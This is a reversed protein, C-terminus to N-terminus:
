RQGRPYFGVIVRYDAVQPFRGAFARPYEDSACHKLNLTGNPSVLEGSATYFIGDADGKVIQAIESRAALGGL